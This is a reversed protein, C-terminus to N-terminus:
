PLISLLRRIDNISYDPQKAGPSPTGPNFNGPKWVTVAGIENGPKIDREIRDGVVIVTLEKGDDTKYWCNKVDQFCQRDKRNCLVVDVFYKNLEHTELTKKQLAVSGESLLILRYGRKNLIQLVEKVGEFLEAPTNELIDNHIATAEKALDVAKKVEGTTESPNKLIELSEIISQNMDLNRHYYFWLSLALIEFPYLHSQHKTILLSDMKRLIKMDEKTADAGKTMTIMQTQAKEFVANKDVLTNDLDFIILGADKNM